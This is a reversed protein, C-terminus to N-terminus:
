LRIVYAKRNDPLQMKGIVRFESTGGFTRNAM